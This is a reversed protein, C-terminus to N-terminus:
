QPLIIEFTSGVDVAGHAHIEGNHLSIIKKVIALGVGTGEYKERTHLRQFIDFIKEAYQNSFGIGNDSYVIRVFSRGNKEVVDSTIRILPPREAHAFKLSNSILNQFVQGLQLIIGKVTPLREAKVVACKETIPIELDNLIQALVLNLDVDTYEPDSQNLRSFLLLDEILKTMRGSAQIIQELYRDVKPDSLSEGIRDKLMKGFISIKRLPEKLDHSAVSTFQLLEYNMKELESTREKVKKELLEKDAIEKRKVEEAQLKDKTIDRVEIVTGRPINNEVIPSATFAVNYFRGDKHIFVDEGQTQMREPLARDIPCEEIPFHRGDQHTHHIYYHLPKEQVEQLKFGTMAEAAPNMYTCYQRADMMFLAQLTNNTITNILANQSNLQEQIVKRDSIDMCSGVYGRFQGDPSYYPNGNVQCWILKGDRRVLRYETEFVKRAHYSDKFDQLARGKDADIIHTAWGEGLHQDLSKGTWDLWTQNVFITKGHEDTMWLAVPSANTLVDSFAQIDEIARKSSEDGLSSFVALMHPEEGYAFSSVNIEVKIKAGQLTKIVGVGSFKRGIRVLEHVTTFDPDDDFLNKGPIQKMGSSYGFMKRAAHNTEVVIGDLSFIVIADFTSEFISKYQETSQRLKNETDKKQEFLRANAIAVAAQTAIGEILIESEETFIGPEPHGFFLGGIVEGSISTVPAALYSRVHLHRMPIWYHPGNADHPQKTVDDHRVIGHNMLTTNFLKANEPMPLNLFAEKPVGSTTYLLQEGSVTNEANYYFIGFTAGTLRTGVDTIRQVLNEFEVESAIAKSSELLLKLVSTESKQGQLM